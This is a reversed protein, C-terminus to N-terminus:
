RIYPRLKVLLSDDFAKIKALDEYGNIDGNQKRYNIIIWALDYSIYPHNALTKASDSNFQIPRVESRIVFESKIKEILDSELGFVENLQDMNSFGGLLDRYKVIRNSYAKGIGKIQQLQEPNAENIDVIVKVLPSDDVEFTSRTTTSKKIRTETASRVYKPEFVQKKVSYSSEVEAVWRSLAASDYPLEAQDKIRTITFSTSGTVVIVLVALM